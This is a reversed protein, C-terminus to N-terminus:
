PSSKKDPSTVSAQASRERLLLILRMGQNLIDDQHKKWLYLVVTTLVTKLKQM